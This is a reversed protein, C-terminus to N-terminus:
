LDEEYEANFRDLRLQAADREGELYTLADIDFEFSMAKTCIDVIKQDCAAAEYDDM